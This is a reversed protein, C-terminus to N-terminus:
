LSVKIISFTKLNACDKRPLHWSAEFESLPQKRRCTEVQNNVLNRYQEISYQHTTPLMNLDTHVLVSKM